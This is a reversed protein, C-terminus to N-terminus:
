KTPLEEIKGKGKCDSCSIMKRKPRCYINFYPVQGSGGCRSCNKYAAESERIKGDMTFIDAEVLKSCDWCHRPPPESHEEPLVAKVHGCLPCYYTMSSGARLSANDIRQPPNAKRELFAKIADAHELKREELTKM